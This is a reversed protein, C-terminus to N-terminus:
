KGWVNKYVLTNTWNRQMYYQEAETSGNPNTHQEYDEYQSGTYNWYYQNWLRGGFATRATFHRLFDVEAYATGEVTVFHAQNNVENAMHAYPNEGNGLPEGTPGDYTGGYHGAIDLKPIVPPERYSFSISGGEQQQDGNYSGNNERYTVSLNEGLRIHNKVKFSTNVRMQYRHEYTNLLTGKQNVYNLALYYAGNDNGGTASITNQTELAPSFLTHFWDTGGQSFKQILNDNAPVVPDYHYYQLVSADNTVGAVGFAGQASAFHYGYTPITGPGGPYLAETPADNALYALKSQQVPNELHWVNGGLPRQTGVFADYNIVTKGSHGKKTTIVVVGNGGSVGYIAAAGADKLVSISEIDNPNLYSMDPVQAGDVVYLPNTNGFNSVGRVFVTSAAGPAGSNLVTVGAAQGQLLQESTTVPVKRADSVDVVSVAGTIDKKKQATYGTVIVDNLTSNSQNMSIDGLVSNGSLVVTYADYGIATISLTGTLTPVKLAFTGDAGTVTAYRSGKVVVTAGIVPQNDTKGIVRGTITSPTQAFLHFSFLLALIALGYGKCAENTKFLM